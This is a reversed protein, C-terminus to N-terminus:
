NSNPAYSANKFQWEASRVPPHTPYRQYVRLKFTRTQPVTKSVAFAGRVEDITVMDKYSGLVAELPQSEIGSGDVLVFEPPPSSPKLGHWSCWVVVSPSSSRWGFPDTKSFISRPLFSLVRIARYWPKSYFVHNTGTTVGLITLVSGDPLRAVRPPFVWRILIIVISLVVLLVIALCLGRRM